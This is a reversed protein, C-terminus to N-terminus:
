LYGGEPLHNLLRVFATRGRGQKEISILNEKELHHLASYRSQREIGFEKFRIPCIKFESTKRIKAEHALVIAVAFSKGPLRAATQLWVLCVPGMFFPSSIGESDRCLATGDLMKEFAQELM